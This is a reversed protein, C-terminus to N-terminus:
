AISMATIASSCKNTSFEYLLFAHNNQGNKSTKNVFQHNLVVPTCTRMAPNIAVATCNVRPTEPLLPVLANEPSHM